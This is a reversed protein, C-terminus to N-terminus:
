RLLILAKRYFPPTFLLMLRTKRSSLTKGHIAYLPAFIDSDTITRKKTVPHPEVPYPYGIEKGRVRAGSGSFLHVVPRTNKKSTSLFNKLNRLHRQFRKTAHFISKPQLAVFTLM